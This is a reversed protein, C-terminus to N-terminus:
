AAVSRSRKPIQVSSHASIVTKGTQSNRGEFSFLVEGQEDNEEVLKEVTAQISMIRNARMVGQFDVKIHLLVPTKRRSSGLYQMVVGAGLSALLMGHAISQHAVNTDGTVEAFKSIRQRTIEVAGEILMGVRLDEFFVQEEDTSHVSPESVAAVNQDM